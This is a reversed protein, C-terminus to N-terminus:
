FIHWYGKFLLSYYEGFGPLFRERYRDPHGSAIRLIAIQNDKVM